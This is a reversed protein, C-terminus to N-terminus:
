RTSAMRQTHYAYKEQCNKNCYAVLYCRKCSKMPHSSKYVSCMCEAYACRELPGFELRNPDTVSAAAAGLELKTGLENWAAWLQKKEAHLHFFESRMTRRAIKWQSLSYKRVALTPPFRAAQHPSDSSSPHRSYYHLMRTLALLALVYVDIFYAMFIKRSFKFGSM